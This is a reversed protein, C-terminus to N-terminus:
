NFDRVALRDRKSLGLEALEAEVRAIAAEVRQLVAQQKNTVASLATLADQASAELNGKLLTNLDQTQCHCSIWLCCSSHSPLVCRHCAGPLRVLLQQTVPRVQLISNTRATGVSFRAPGFVRDVAWQLVGNFVSSAPSSPSTASLTSRALRREAVDTLPYRRTPFLHHEM